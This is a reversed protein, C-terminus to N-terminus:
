IHITGDPLITGALSRAQALQEESVRAGTLDAGSLDAGQLNVGSLDARRLNAERLNADRLNTGSLVLYSLDAGALDARRRGLAIAFLRQRLRLNVTAFQLYLRYLWRRMPSEKGAFRPLLSGYYLM